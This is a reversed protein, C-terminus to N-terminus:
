LANMELALSEASGITSFHKNEYSVSVQASDSIECMVLGDPQEWASLYNAKDTRVATMEYGDGEEFPRLFNSLQKSPKGYKGILLIGTKTWDLWLDSWRSHKEFYLAIKWLAKSKPTFVAVIQADRNGVKGLFDVVDSRRTRVTYPM